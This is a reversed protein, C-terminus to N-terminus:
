SGSTGYEEWSKWTNVAPAPDGGGGSSKGVSSSKKKAVVLDLEVEDMM